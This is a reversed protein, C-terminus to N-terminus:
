PTLGWVSLNIDAVVEDSDLRINLNEIDVVLPSNELKDLFLVTNPYNSRTTISVKLRKDFPEINKIFRNQMTIIEVGSAIAVSSIRKLFKTWSKRDYVVNSLNLLQSNLYKKRNKLEIIEQKLKEIEGQQKSILFNDNFMLYDKYERIKRTIKREEQELKIVEQKSSLYLYKYSLFFIGGVIMIYIYVLERTSLSTLSDDIKNLFM